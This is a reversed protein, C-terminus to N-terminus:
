PLGRAQIRLLGRERTVGNHCTFNKKEFVSWVSKGFINIADILKEFSKKKNRRMTSINQTRSQKDM